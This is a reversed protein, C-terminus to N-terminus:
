ILIEEVKTLAENFTLAKSQSNIYSNKCNDILSNIHYIGNESNNLELNDKIENLKDLTLTYSVKTKSLNSIYITLFSGAGSFGIRDRDKMYTYDFLEELISYDEIANYNIFSNEKLSPSKDLKLFSKFYKLAEILNLQFLISLASSYYYNKEDDIKTELYEIAKKACFDKEIKSDMLIKIASWCVHSKVNICLEKLLDIDNTLKIYQELEKDISNNYDDILFYERIKSFAQELNNGLVHQIHRHISFYGLKKNLLNDIVTKNFLEDNNIKNKITEFNNEEESSKDVDFFEISNLLFDQSLDFDFQVMFFLVTKLKEYDDLINFRGISIYGIVKDFRIEESAKKCWDYIVKKQKDSIEFKNNSDNRGQIQSQIEKIILLDNELIEEFDSYTLSGRERYILRSLIGYATDIKSGHGNKEYWDLDIDLLQEPNISDGYETFINKIESLLKEKEFLIDFNEQPKNEYKIKEKEYEEEFLFSQKFIFNKGLMINNFEGALKRNGHNAIVNRFFDLENNDISGNVFKEIIISFGDIM